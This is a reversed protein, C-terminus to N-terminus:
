VDCLNVSRLLVSKVLCLTSILNLVSGCVEEFWLRFCVCVFVCRGQSPMMIGCVFLRRILNCVSSILFTKVDDSLM